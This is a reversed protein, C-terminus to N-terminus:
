PADGEKSSPVCPVFFRDAQKKLADELIARVTTAMQVILDDPIAALAEYASHALRIAQPVSNAGEEGLAARIDDISVSVEVESGPPEYFVTAKV